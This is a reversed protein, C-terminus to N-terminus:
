DMSSPNDVGKYPDGLLYISNVTRIINGDQAKIPSTKVYTGDLFRGKADGYLDGVIVKYGGMDVIRWNEITGDTKM